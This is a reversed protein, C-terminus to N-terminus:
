LSFPDFSQSVPFPVCLIVIYVASVAKKVTTYHWITDWLCKGEKVPRKMHAPWARVPQSTYPAPAPPTPASGTSSMAADVFGSVTRWERGLFPCCPVFMLEVYWCGGHTSGPGSQINVRGKKVWHQNLALVVRSGTKQEWGPFNSRLHCWRTVPRSM